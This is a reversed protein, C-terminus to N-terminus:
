VLSSNDSGGFRARRDDPAPGEEAGNADRTGRFGNMAVHHLRGPQRPSSPLHHQDVQHVGAGSDM